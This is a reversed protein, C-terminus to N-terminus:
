ICKNEVIFDLKPENTLYEDPEFTNRRIIIEYSKYGCKYYLSYVYNNQNYYLPIMYTISM